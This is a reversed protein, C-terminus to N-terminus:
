DEKENAQLHERISELEVEQRTARLADITERIVAIVDAPPRRESELKKLYEELKPIARKAHVGYQKLMPVIKKTRDRNGHGKQVKLYELLLDIGEEINNDALLGAIALRIGSASMIGSPAVERLAYALDPWLKDLQAQTLKGVPRALMSREAGGQCYLLKKLAPILLKDDVGDISDALLGKDPRYPSAQFLATCLVRAMTGRKDKPFDQAAMKLLPVAARQDGIFGLALIAHIQLLQDDAAILPLLAETVRDQKTKIKRLATCAGYRAYRNKSSLLQLIRDISVGDKKSLSQAAFNRVVPSWSGLLKLLQEESHDDYKESVKILSGPVRGAEIVEAVEDSPIAATMLEKGTIHLVKRPLCYMLIRGGTTDWHPYQHEATNRQMGKRPGDAHLKTGFGPKGQYVFGGDWRRELDFLWTLEHLFASCGEQGARAAGLAAWVFAFWNGTHGLERVAHSAVTMRSFYETGYEDGFLAFGVAAASNLGNNDHHSSGFNLHDGYGITQVDVFTSLYNHGRHIAQEIEQDTVGCRKALLLSIWCVNGAQNVAGYGGLAGHLRGRNMPQDPWAMGHGWSGVGSQGEAIANSYKTITPLVKEDRTLLYYESLLVNTYGWGWSAYGWVPLGKGEAEHKEVRSIIQHIHDKVFPLYQKNGTAMLALTRVIAPGGMLGQSQIGNKLLYGCARDVIKQSKECDWPTTKSYSGMVDTQITVKETKGNRWRLLRLQGKGERTEAHTLAQGLAKRAYFQFNGEGVGLIVDGIQLVGEAPSGKHVQTIYIQRAHYTDKFKAHMWGRAGTAGLNWDVGASLDPQCGKTFDLEKPQPTLDVNRSEGWEKRWMIVSVGSDNIAAAKAKKRFAFIASSDFPKGDVGLIVDGVKIQDAIRSDENVQSILIQRASESNGQKDKYMWGRTGHFHLIWTERSYTGNDLKTVDPGKDKTLDPIEAAHAAVSLVAFCAISLYVRHAKM